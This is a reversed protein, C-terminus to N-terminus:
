GTPPAARLPNILQGGTTLFARVTAAVDLSDPAYLGCGDLTQRLNVKRGIYEMLVPAASPERSDAGSVGITLGSLLTVRNRYSPYLITHTLESGTLVEEDILHLRDGLLLVLGTYKYVDPSQRTGHPKVREFRRYATFDQWHFIHILSRLIYGPTSFSPYYEYYYGLNKALVGKQRQSQQLRTKLREPLSMADDAGKPRLQVIKRFQEHPMLIEFEDLGFFDCIRRLNHRSPSSQGSLYKMFQQRNIDMRRCLDSISPYYSCCLRLNECFNATTFDLPATM